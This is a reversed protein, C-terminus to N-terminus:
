AAQSELKHNDIQQGSTWHTLTWFTSTQWCTRFTSSDFVDNTVVTSASARLSDAVPNPLRGAPTLVCCGPSFIARDNVFIGCAMEVPMGAMFSLGKIGAGVPCGVIHAGILGAGGTVLITTEKLSHDM